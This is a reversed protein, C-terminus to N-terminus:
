KAFIYKTKPDSGFPYGPLTGGPLTGGTTTGKPAPATTGEPLRLEPPVYVGRVVLATILQAQLEMPSPCADKTGPLQTDGNIVGTVYSIMGIPSAFDWIAPLGSDTTAASELGSTIDNWLDKLLDGIAELVGEIVEALMKAVTAPTDRGEDLWTSIAWYGIMVTSAVAATTTVIIFITQLAEALYKGTSPRAFAIFVVLALSAAAVAAIAAVNAAKLEDTLGSDSAYSELREKVGRLTCLLLTAQQTTLTGRQLLKQAEAISASLKQLFSGYEQITLTGDRVAARETETSTRLTAVVKLM